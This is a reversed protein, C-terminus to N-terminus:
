HELIVQVLPKRGTVVEAQISSGIKMEFPAADVKALAHFLRAGSEGQTGAPELREVHGTAKGHIRSNYMLSAFRVQQSIALQGFHREDFTLRVCLDLPKKTAPDIPVVVAILDGSQVHQGNAARTEVVLWRAFSRPLTMAQSQPRTVHERTWEPLFERWYENMRSVDDQRIEAAQAGGDLEDGPSLQTTLLGSMAARLELSHLSTVVGEAPAVAEMPVGFLAAAIASAFLGLSLALM